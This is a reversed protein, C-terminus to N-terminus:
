LAKTQTVEWGKLDDHSKNKFVNLENYLCTFQTEQCTLVHSGLQRKMKSEPTGALTRKVLQCGKQPTCTNITLLLLGLIPLM